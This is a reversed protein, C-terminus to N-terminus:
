RRSTRCRVMTTMQTTFRHISLRNRDARGEREREKERWVEPAKSRLVGGSEQLPSGLSERMAKIPFLSSYGQVTDKFIGRPRRQLLHKGGLPFSKVQVKDWSFVFLYFFVVDLCYLYCCGFLIQLDCDQSM